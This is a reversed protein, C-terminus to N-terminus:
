NENEVEGSLNRYFMLGNRIEKKILIGESECYAPIGRPGLYKRWADYEMSCGRANEYGEGFYVIDAEALIKLSESLFVLASEERAAANKFYSDLILCETFGLNAITEIIEKRKALIEDQSLGKMPQSIFIKKHKQIKVCDPNIQM